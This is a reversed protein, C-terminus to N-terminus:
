EFENRATCMLNSQESLHFTVIIFVVKADHGAAPGRRKTRDIGCKSHLTNAVRRRASSFFFPALRTQWLLQLCVSAQSSVLTHTHTHDRVLYKTEAM